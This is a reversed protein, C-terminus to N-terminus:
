QAYLWCRVLRGDVNVIPPEKVSCVDMRLPCRPHFRCGKPPNVLDPPHGKIERIEKKVFVDPISDILGQTYPHLPKSVIDKSAGYEYLHGAYMVAIKDSKEAALALDHTILLVTVKLEKKLSALLDMIRDQVIVDLATTPEDAIILKPKLITALAIMVRQRQGGSLQHPYNDMRESPIGVDQLTKKAIECAEKRSLNREHELVTEILQDGIKQLPDLSTLPDQFVMSIEKGRIKRMEKESLKLLDIGEFVISGSVVKAQHPLVRIISLGLTSKGSGSEGVLGVMEGRDLSISVDDVAKVVGRRTYYYVKLNRIELLTM